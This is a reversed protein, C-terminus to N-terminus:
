KLTKSAFFLIKNHVNILWMTFTALELTDVFVKKCFTNIEVTELVIQQSQTDKAAYHDGTYKKYLRTKRKMKFINALLVLSITGLVVNYQM